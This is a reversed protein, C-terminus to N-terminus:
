FLNDTNRKYNTTSSITSRDVGVFKHGNRRLIFNLLKEKWRDKIEKFLLKYANLGALHNPFKVMYRFPCHGKWYGHLPVSHVMVGGVKVMDHINQFVQEQDQVHETTGFNTVMDFKGKFKDPIPKCLDMVVAGDLGNIDFSVHKAGQEEFWTKALCNKHRIKINGLEAVSIKRLPKGLSKVAQSILHFNAPSIAM